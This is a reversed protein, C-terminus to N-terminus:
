FIVYTYQLTKSIERVDWFDGFSAIDDFGPQEGAGEAKRETFITRLVTTFYYTKTSTMGFTVKFLVFCYNFYNHKEVDLFCELSM